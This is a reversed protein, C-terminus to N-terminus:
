KEYLFFLYIKENKNIFMNFKIIEAIAKPIYKM